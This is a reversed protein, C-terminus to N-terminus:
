DDYEDHEEETMMLFVLRKAMRRYAIIYGAAFCTVMILLFLAISVEISSNNLTDVVHKGVDEAQQTTTEM